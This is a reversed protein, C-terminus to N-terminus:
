PSLRCSSVVCDSLPDYLRGALLAPLVYREHKARASEPGHDWYFLFAMVAVEQVVAVAMGVDTDSPQLLSAAVRFFTGLPDSTHSFFWLVANQIRELRRYHIKSSWIARDRNFWPPVIKEDSEWVYPLRFYADRPYLSLVATAVCPCCEACGLRRRAAHQRQELARGYSELYRQYQAINAFMRDVIVLDAGDARVIEALRLTKGYHIYAEFVRLMEALVTDHPLYAHARDHELTWDNTWAVLRGRTAEVVYEATHLTCAANAAPPALRSARVFRDVAVKRPAGREYLTMLNNYAYAVAWLEREQLTALSFLMMPRAELIQLAAMVEHRLRPVQTDLWRLTEGEPDTEWESM